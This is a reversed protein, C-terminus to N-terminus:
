GLAFRALEGAPRAGSLRARETGRDLRVLTPVSRIAFRAATRPEADIDVKVLLARGKMQAAAQDYVPAMAHCPGCWAAHFDVVVPLETGQVVADFNADTLAVPHAPLLDRGCRGCHPDDAVRAQPLRNRTSCQSCVVDVTGPSAPISM